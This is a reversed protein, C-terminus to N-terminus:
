VWSLFIFFLFMDCKLSTLTHILSQYGKSLVWWDWGFRTDGASVSLRFSWNNPKPRHTPQFQTAAAQYSYGFSFIVRTFATNCPFHHSHCSVFFHCNHKTGTPGFILSQHMYSIYNIFIIFINFSWYVRWIEM